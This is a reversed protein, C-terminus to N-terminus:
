AQQELKEIESALKVAASSWTYGKAHEYSNDIVTKRLALTLAINKELCQLISDESAPNFMAEELTNDFVERYSPIDSLLPLTGCFVAQLPSIGFGEYISPSILLTAGTLLAPLDSDPVYQNPQIVKNEEKLQKLQLLVEENRWSEAGIVLLPYDCQVQQPLRVFARLFTALNKRPEVNGLFVLYNKATLGYKQKVNLVESRSRAYFVKPDAGAPIVQVRQSLPAYTEELDDKGVKLLTVIVNSRSIWMRVNAQLYQLNKHAVYKPYKVFGLDHIYTVSKSRLLPWNRYNPFLYVGKGILLDVPPLCHFKLFLSMGRAPIPITKYSVNQLGHRKVLNRKFLPLVLIIQHKRTFSTDNTLARIMELTLSGVGSMRNNALVVADIFFKHKTKKLVLRGNM